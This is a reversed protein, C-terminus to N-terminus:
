AVTVFLFVVVIEARSLVRRVGLKRLVFNVLVLFVLATLGPIAPVSESIQTSLVVIEAQRVWLASLVTFVVSLALARQTLGPAEPAPSVPPESIM